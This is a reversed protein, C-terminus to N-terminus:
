SAAPHQGLLGVIRDAPVPPSFYYGQGYACKLQRLVDAQDRTEIGEAVAALKLSAMLQLIARVVTWPQHQADTGAASPTFSSDMKVLDVPLRTIYSLSSYGTGFDDIAVRVGHARLRALEARVRPDATNEILSSETLELILAPGPLGTDALTDLVLDAFGPDDVQRGSVNVAITIGHDLYWHMGDRCARRLVWAGIDSILGAQEAVPIFEAPPVMLGSALPWRVLAEVGVVRGSDLAVIPQYHVTLEKRSVAQRLETTMRALHLREDLLRPNFESVRNRGSAKAAYLAQDVDRLGEAASPPREGAPTIVLGVSASILLEQGSVVFPNRVAQVIAEAIRRADGPTANEVLVGFEDGGLRV